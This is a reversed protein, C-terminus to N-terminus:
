TSSRVVLETPLLIQQPENAKGALIDLLLSAATEAKRDIPQRITTLPPTANRANPIDDFGILAVDDPISLGAEQIAQMAGIAIIDSGAVIADIGQTILDKAQRYGAAMTFMDIRVLSEDYPIDHAELAQKYGELREHSDINNWNGAITAIRRYGQQILYETATKSANVNDISVYNIVDPQITPRGIMVFPIDITLLEEIFFMEEDVSAALILGDMIRKELIREYFRERRGDLSGVWLLMAYDRQQSVETISQIITSFYYPNDSSFVHSLPDPIVVAIVQNRQTRLSRAAMNPVYGSEKIVALVKERTADSVYADNNIVRSVTSRSVGAQAAVDILSIKRNIKGSM